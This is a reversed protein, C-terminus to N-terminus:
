GHHAPPTDLDPNTWRQWARLQISHTLLWRAGVSLVIGGTAAALAIIIPSRGLYLGLAMASTVGFLAFWTLLALRSGIGTWRGTEWTWDHRTWHYSLRLAEPLSVPETFAIPIAMVFRSTFYLGGLGGIISVFWATPEDPGALLGEGVFLQSIGEALLLGLGCTVLAGFAIALCLVIRTSLAAVPRGGVHRRAVWQLRVVGIIPWIFIALALSLAGVDSPESALLSLGAAILALLSATLVMEGLLHRRLPQPPLHLVDASPIGDATPASNM